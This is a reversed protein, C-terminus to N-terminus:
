LYADLFAQAPASVVRYELNPGECRWSFTWTNLAVVTGDHFLPGGSDGVCVSKTIKVFRDPFADHETIMLVKERTQGRPAPRRRAQSARAPAPKATSPDAEGKRAAARGARPTSPRGGGLARLGPVSRAGTRALAAAARELRALERAVPRLERM